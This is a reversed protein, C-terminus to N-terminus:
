GQLAGTEVFRQFQTKVPVKNTTADEIIDITMAALEEEDELSKAIILKRKGKGQQEQQTRKRKRSAAIEKLLKTINEKTAAYEPNETEIEGRPEQTM